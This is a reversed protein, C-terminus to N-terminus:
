HVSCSEIRKGKRGCVIGVGNGAALDIIIQIAEKGYYRGDGGVVLTSGRAGPSPMAELTAQIFNHTYHEQQFTKVRKRLGSTGPKQDNYAKTPKSAIDFTSPSM